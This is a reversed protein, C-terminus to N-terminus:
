NMIECGHEEVDCYPFALALEGNEANERLM